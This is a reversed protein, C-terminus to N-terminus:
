KNNICQKGLRSSASLKQSDPYVIGELCLGHDNVIRHVSLLPKIGKVIINASERYWM